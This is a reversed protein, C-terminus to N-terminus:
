ATSPRPRRTRTCREWSSSGQRPRTSRSASPRSTECRASSSPTRTRRAAARLASAFSETHASLERQSILAKKNEHKFEIPDEVTIIHMPYRQNIEAIIAALTTSKGSGTPGTVIVLGSRMNVIKSVSEPLNLKALSVLNTALNRFVGAMGREQRFLNVRFRSVGPLDYAFDVDGTAEYQAWLHPPTIPEVLTRFDGDSIRRYQITDIRGAVRFMPPRGVSLHMDSAGWDNMLRFFRAIRNENPDMHLSQETTAPSASEEEQSRGLGAGVEAYGRSGPTSADGAPAARGRPAAPAAAASAADGPTCVAAAPLVAPARADADAADVSTAGTRAHTPAADLPARRAPGDGRRRLCRVPNIPSEARRRGPGPHQATRGGEGGTGEHIDGEEPCIRLGDRLHHRRGDPAARALLRADLMGQARGIQMASGLQFTKGDRITARVSSTSKLIEFVAVRARGDARPVLIQSVILKLSGALQIRIQHQEESPFTEVLKDITATAGTTQMTAVVLHGTEAAVMALRMTERDRLDGVIVVDPDERLAGRMATAFSLSDRGIERQNVLAKKPTHLFEIPDELSLIHASRSENLM